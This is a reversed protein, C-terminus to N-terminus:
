GNNVPRRFPNRNSTKEQRIGNAYVSYYHCKVGNITVGTIYAEPGGQWDGIPIAIEYMPRKATPAFCTLTDLTKPDFPITDPLFVRGVSIGEPTRDVVTAASILLASTLIYIASLVLSKKSIM